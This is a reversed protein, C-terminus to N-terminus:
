GFDACNCETYILENNKLDFSLNTNYLNFDSESMVKGYIDLSDYEGDVISKIELVLDDKFCRLGRYLRNNSDKKIILANLQTINM